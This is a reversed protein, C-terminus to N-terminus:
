YSQLTVAVNAGSSVTTTAFHTFKIEDNARLYRTFEGQTEWGIYMGGLANMLRKGSDTVNVVQLNSNGPNGSPLIIAAITLVCNVLVKLQGATASPVIFDNNFELGSEATFAPLVTGSSTPSFAVTSYSVYRRKEVGVNKIKTDWLDNNNNHINIDYAEGEAPKVAGYNTTSGAM